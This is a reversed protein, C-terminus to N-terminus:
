QTRDKGSLTFMGIIITHVKSGPSVGKKIKRLVIIESFFSFDKNLQDEEKLM